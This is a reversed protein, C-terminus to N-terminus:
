VRTGEREREDETSILVGAMPRTPENQLCVLAQTGDGHQLDEQLERLEGETEAQM